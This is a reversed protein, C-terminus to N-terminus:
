SLKIITNKIEKPINIFTHYNLPFELFVHLLSLLYLCRLGFGYDYFYLGVSVAWLIIVAFLQVFPVKHWKIVSTKSFWNLYHYTYAFAIFRMVMYGTDSHFVKIVTNKNWGELKDLQFLNIFEYNLQMMDAYKLKIDTSLHYSSLSPVYFFFVLTCFIFVGLSAFGTLSKNKLAGVLIFAGTFLYVHVLTPLFVSVFIKYFDLKFLLLSGITIIVIAAYRNRKEKIFALAVAGVFATLILSPVINIFPKAVFSIFTIIVALVALYVFDYKGHSFYNRKHLWSIETLYHLPGLVAYSFLFLEFPIVFAVICSILMLGINVLDIKQTNM